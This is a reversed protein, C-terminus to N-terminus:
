YRLRLDNLFKKQLQYDEDYHKNDSYKDEIAKTSCTNSSITVQFPSAYVPTGEASRLYYLNSRVSVYNISSEHYNEQDVKIFFRKKIKCSRTSHELQKKLDEITEIGTAPLFAKLLRKSEGINRDCISKGHREVFLIFHIELKSFPITLSGFIFQIFEKSRFHPGCDSIFVVKSIGVFLQKEILQKLSEVVQQTDKNDTLSLFNFSQCDILGLRNTFAVINLFTVNVHDFHTEGTAVHQY